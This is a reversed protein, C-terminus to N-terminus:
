LIWLDMLGGSISSQNAKRHQSYLCRQQMCSLLRSIIFSISFWPCIILIKGKCGGLSNLILSHTFHLQVVLCFGTLIRLIRLSYLMYIPLSDSYFLAYLPCTLLCFLCLLASSKNNCISQMAFLIHAFKSSFFAYFIQVCFTQLSM